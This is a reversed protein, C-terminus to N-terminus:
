NSEQYLSFCDIIPKLVLSQLFFFLNFFLRSKYDRLLSQAVMCTKMIYSKASRHFRLEICAGVDKPPGKKSGTVTTSTATAIQQSDRSM